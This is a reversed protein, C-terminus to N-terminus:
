WIVAEESLAMDTARWIIQVLYIDHEAFEGGGSTIELKDGEDIVGNGAVDTVNLFVTLTGFPTPGYDYRTMTGSDLDQANMSWGAYDLGDTLWVAFDSWSLSADNAVCEGFICDFGNELLYHRMSVVPAVHPSEGFGTSLAVIVYYSIVSVVILSATVKILVVAWSRRSRPKPRFSESADEQVVGARAQEDTQEREM